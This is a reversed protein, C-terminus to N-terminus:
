YSLKVGSIGSSSETRRVGPQRVPYLYMSILYASLGTMTEQEDQYISIFYTENVLNKSNNIM